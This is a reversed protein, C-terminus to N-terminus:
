KEGRAELPAALPPLSALAQLLEAVSAHGTKRRLSVAQSRVTATSVGLAAAARSSSEGRALRGLVRTEAESLGHATAYARLDARDDVEPNLALLVASCDQGPAALASLSLSYRGKPAVWQLLQPLRSTAAAQLAADLGPRLAADAAQVRGQPTVQLPAGRRLLRRAAANAHLLSGDLRLLLLPWALADAVLALAQAPPENNAAPSAHPVTM